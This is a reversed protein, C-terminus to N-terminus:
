ALEQATRTQLYQVLAILAASSSARDRADCLVLPTEPLLDLSERIEEGAFHPSGDFHNVAVAYPLGREELLDMVPFSADLRRTDALVLAGLAGRTMDKWLPLFREQGPAGFLYLVLSDSVTLRGFDMAVTTTRKGRTGTLDDIHAGAQSMTEETSLPRIESLTGVMTTKGVGFHGTVVIKVAKTVTDRLYRVDSSPVSDM